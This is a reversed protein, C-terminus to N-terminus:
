HSHRCSFGLLFLLNEELVTKTGEAGGDMYSLVADIGTEASRHKRSSALRGDWLVDAELLTDVLM